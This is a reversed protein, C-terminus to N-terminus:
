VVRVVPQCCTDMGRESRAAAMTRPQLPDRVDFDGGGPKFLFGGEDLDILFAKQWVCLLIRDDRKIGFKAGDCLTIDEGYAISFGAPNDM